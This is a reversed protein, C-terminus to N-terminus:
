RVGSTDTLESEDGSYLADNDNSESALSAFNKLQKKM